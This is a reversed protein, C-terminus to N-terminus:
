RSIWTPHRGPVILADPIDFLGFTSKLQIDRVEVALHRGAPLVLGSITHTDSSEYRLPSKQGVCPYWPKGDMYIKDIITDMGKGAVNLTRVILTTTPQLQITIPEETQPLPAAASFRYYDSVAEVYPTFGEAVPIVDYQFKFRGNQDTWGISDDLMTGNVVRVSAKAAPKGDASLVIGSITVRLYLRLELSYVKGIESDIDLRTTSYDPGSGCFITYRGKGIHFTALGQEDCRVSFVSKDPQHVDVSICCMPESTPNDIVRLRVLATNALDKENAEMEPAPPQGTLVIRLDHLDPWLSKRFDNM